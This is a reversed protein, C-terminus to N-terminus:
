QSEARSDALSAGVQLLTLARNIETSKREHKQGAVAKYDM